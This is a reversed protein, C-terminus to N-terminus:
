GEVLWNEEKHFWESPNSLYLHTDQLLDYHINEEKALFAFLKKAAADDTEDSIKKYFDYGKRELEMGAEYANLLEKEPAVSKELSAKISDLVQTKLKESWKTNEWDSSANFEKGTIRAYFNQIAKKHMLEKEAIAMLTSSGLVNKSNNAGKTYIAYGEEELFIATKAAKELDSSM